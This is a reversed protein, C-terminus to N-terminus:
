YAIFVKDHYNGYITPKQEVGNLRRAYYPVGESIDSLYFYLEDFTLKGDHNIDANKDKLARLLFYTFVGHHKENYWSSVQAGTSSALIVMNKSQIAANEAELVIPSINKFVMAGSFCADLVVTVSRAPLKALNQYLVDLSYGSLELYLPEAEVPVFYGKRDKLGPAGHGSYYIFVDSKAEKVANYLKGVVNRENGFYLEFESKTVNTLFFINGEKYGLSSILYKKMIEADNMAYDVPKANKYDRNGIVVAIADSNIRSTVPINSEINDLDRNKKTEAERRLAEEKAAWISLEMAKKQEALRTIEAKLEAAKKEEAQRIAAAKMAGEKEAMTMQEMAKKEEALKAAEAKLEAAKTEADKLEATKKQEEPAAQGVTYAIDPGETAVSYTLLEYNRRRNFDAKVIMKAQPAYWLTGFDVWGINTTSVKIKFSKFVGGGTKVTEYGVVSYSNIYSQSRNLNDRGEYIYSWEKGPFLPFSLKVPLLPSIADGSVEYKNNIIIKNRQKSTEILEQVLFGGNRDVAAVEWYGKEKNSFTFVYKDGPQMVPFNAVPDGPLPAMKGAACGALSVLALMMILVMTRMNM